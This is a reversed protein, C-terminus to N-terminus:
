CRSLLGTVQVQLLWQLCRDTVGYGDVSLMDVLSCFEDVIEVHSGDGIDVSSKVESNAPCLCVTCVFSWSCVSQGKHRLMEQANMM